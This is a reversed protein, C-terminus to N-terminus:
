LLMEQENDIHEEACETHAYAVAYKSDRHPTWFSVFHQSTRITNSCYWCYGAGLAVGHEVLLTEGHTWSVTEIVM